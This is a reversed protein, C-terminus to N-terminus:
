DLRVPMVVHCVGGGGEPLILVPGLTARLEIRVDGKPLARLAQLLYPASFGMQDMRGDVTAPCVEDAEGQDVKRAEWRLGGEQVRMRVETSAGGGELSVRALTATLPQIGCTVTCVPADRPLITRYQPFAAEFMRGAVWSGGVSARLWGERTVLVVDAAPDVAGLLGVLAAALPAGVLSSAPPLTGAYACEAWSLRNGDTAVLRAIGEDQQEVLIGNLGARKPDTSVCFRVRELAELLDGARLTATPGDWVWPEADAESERLLAHEAMGCQLVVKFEQARLVVPYGPLLQVVKRLHARDRVAFSAPAGGTSACPVESGALLDRELTTARATLITAGDREVVRLDLPSTCPLSCPLTLLAALDARQVVVQGQDPLLPPREAAPATPKPSRKPPM